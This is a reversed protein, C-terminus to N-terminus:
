GVRHIVVYKLIFFALLTVVALALFMELFLMSFDLAHETTAPETPIQLLFSYM